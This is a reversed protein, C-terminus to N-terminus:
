VSLASPFYPFQERRKHLRSFYTQRCMSSVFRSGGELVCMNKCSKKLFAVQVHCHQVSIEKSVKDCPCTRLPSNQCDGKVFASSLKVPLICAISIKLNLNMNWNASFSFYPGQRKEVNIYSFCLSLCKLNENNRVVLSLIHKVSGSLAKFFLPATCVVQIRGM